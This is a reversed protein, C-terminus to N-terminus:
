PAPQRRNKWVEEPFPEIWFAPYSGNKSDQVLAFTFREGFRSKVGAPGVQYALNKPHLYRATPEGLLARLEVETKGKYLGRSVFDFLLRGRGEADSRAWHGREFREAGFVRLREPDQYNVRPSFLFVGSFLVVLGLLSFGLVKLFKGLM